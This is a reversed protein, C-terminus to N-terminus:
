CQLEDFFKKIPAMDNNCQMYEISYWSFSRGVFFWKKVYNKTYMNLCAILPGSNPGIIYKARTSMAGIEQLTLASANTIGIDILTVVNFKTNLYHSLENLSTNDDYQFSMGRNNLILIDIDKFKPDLSDYVDLLFPEDLWLTNLVPYIEIQLHISIHKYFVEFYREFDLNDIGEKTDAMWLQISCDPKECLPKIEVLEPDVYQLLSEKKNYVYNNDYYYYIKYNQQKLISAVSLFYKLNLLNDGIHMSNHFHFIRM